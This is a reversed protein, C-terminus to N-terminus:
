LDKRHFVSETRFWRGFTTQYGSIHYWFIEFKNIIIFLSLYGCELTQVISLVICYWSYLTLIRWFSSPCLTQSDYFWTMHWSWKVCFFAIFIGVADANTWFAGDPIYRFELQQYYLIKQCKHYFSIRCVPSIHLLHPEVLFTATWVYKINMHSIYKCLMYCEEKFDYSSAHSCDTFVCWGPSM